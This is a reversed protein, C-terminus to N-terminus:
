RAELWAKLDALLRADVQDGALEIRIGSPSARSTLTLGAAIDYRTLDPAPKGAPKATPPESPAPTAAPAELGALADQLVALETEPDPAETTELRDRLTTAFGDAEELARALALGLRESIAAPYRLAGDLAEVLPVFSGIKSRKSRSVAGFLGQLAARMTPYVGEKWASWAIRAREYHSLNVRIENEEVMAVYSSAADGPAIVRAAVTAFRAEGTEALLRKLAALRRWGSILGHTRPGDPAPLKLVEIPTQQGRAKLSTMLAQMEDEDLILRDRVLHGPDIADLPLTEILRGQARASTLEASLEALAATASADGAVQAIPAPGLPRAPSPAEPAASVPGAPALRKRKAM